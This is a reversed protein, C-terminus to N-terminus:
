KVHEPLALAVLLPDPEPLLSLVICQVGNHAYTMPCGRVRAPVEIAGVVSGTTKDFARLIPRGTRALWPGTGDAAILLSKTVIM